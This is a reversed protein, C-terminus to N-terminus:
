GFTWKRSCRVVAFVRSLTVSSFATISNLSESVLSWFSPLFGRNGRCISVFMKFESESETVEMSASSVFRGAVRAILCSCSVAPVCCGDLAGSVGNRTVWKLKSDGGVESM